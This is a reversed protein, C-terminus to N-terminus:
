KPRMTKDIRLFSITTLNTALQVKCISYDKEKGLYPITLKQSNWAGNQLLNRRQM